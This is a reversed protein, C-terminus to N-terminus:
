VFVVAEPQFNVCITGVSGQMSDEIPRSAPGNRPQVSRQSYQFIHRSRLFIIREMTNNYRYRSVGRGVRIAASLNENLKRSQSYLALSLRAYTRGLTSVMCLGGFFENRAQTNCRCRWRLHKTSELIELAISCGPRIHANQGVM